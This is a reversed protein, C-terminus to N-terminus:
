CRGDIVVYCDEPDVDVYDIKEFLNLVYDRRAVLDIIHHIQHVNSSFTLPTRELSAVSSENVDPASRTSINGSYVVKPKPFEMEVELTHAKILQSPITPKWQENFVVIDTRM